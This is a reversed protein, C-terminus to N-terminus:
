RANMGPPISPINAELMELQRKEKERYAMRIGENFEAQEKINVKIGKYAEGKKTLINFFNSPPDHYIATNGELTLICARALEKETKAVLLSDDAENYLAYQEEPRTGNINLLRIFYHM